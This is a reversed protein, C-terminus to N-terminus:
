GGTGWRLGQSEWSSLSTNTDSTIALHAGGLVHDLHPFRRSTFGEGVRRTGEMQGRWRGRGDGLEGTTPALTGRGQNGWRLSLSSLPGPRPPM